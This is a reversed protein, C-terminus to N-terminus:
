SEWSDLDTFLCCHPSELLNDSIHKQPWVSSHKLPSLDNLTEIMGTGVSNDRVTEFWRPNYTFTEIQKWIIILAFFILFTVPFAKAINFLFISNLQYRLEESIRIWQLSSHRQSNEPCLIKLFSIFGEYRELHNYFFCFLFFFLFFAIDWWPCTNTTQYLRCQLYARM